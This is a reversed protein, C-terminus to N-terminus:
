ASIRSRLYNIVALLCTLPFVARQRCLMFFVKWKMPCYTLDLQQFAQIYLEKNLIRHIRRSVEPLPDESLIENLGLGIMGCAVRNLFATQYIDHADSEEVYETYYRYMVDWKDELNPKYSSTISKENTKRYHYFCCDLYSIRCNELAYLNFISDENTGVERESVFRGRRAFEMRYLKMCVSALQDIKEPHALETDFLGVLRRHILEESHEADYSFDGDFLHVPIKRHSYEKVYGYMVCDADDRQIVDVCCEFTNGDLWDDGDVFTVYDGTAAALGTKRADSLGGNEKHIVRVRNDQNAFHDCIEGCRDPSGDDVLIIELNSYTQNLLSDVCEHLFAEVGYVPVIVSIKM